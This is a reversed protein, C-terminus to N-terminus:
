SQKRRFMLLALGGLGALALTTPEPVPVVTFGSFALDTPTGTGTALATTIVASQARWTSTAYSSGNFAQIIINVSGGAYHATPDDVVGVNGFFYGAFTSSNDVPGSPAAGFAFTTADSQGLVYSTMTGYEYLFNVSFTSGLGWGATVANGNETGSVGFTIPADLSTAGFNYNQFMFNGQGYSSLAMSVTALVSAIVIRKM